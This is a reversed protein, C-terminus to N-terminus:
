ANISIGWSYIGDLGDTGGTEEIVFRAKEAHADFKLVDEANTSTAGTVWVPDGNVDDGYYYEVRVEPSGLTSRIVYGVSGEIRGDVLDIEGFSQWNGASVTADEAFTTKEVNTM